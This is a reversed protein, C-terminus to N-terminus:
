AIKERKPEDQGPYDKGPYDKSTRESGPQSESQKRQSHANQKHEQLEPESNFSRHCVECTLKQDNPNPTMQKEKIQNMIIQNM